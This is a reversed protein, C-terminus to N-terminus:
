ENSKEMLHTLSDLEYNNDSCLKAVRQIYSEMDFKRKLGAENMYRISGFVPRRTWPRDHKGFCWAVGAFSNPDRGDLSYKNNLYIATKYAEKYNPTWEIIKKGWYMRMYNHMKGTVIMELQAANWCHDHTRAKEFDDMEYIYPRKDIARGELTQVAWEPLSEHSDYKDNYECFNFSLERRVILEELFKEKAAAPADSNKILLAIHVPSIQGFHLYPSIHSLHNLAPDNRMSDYNHLRTEIFDKVTELARTEGGTFRPSKFVTKDINNLQSINFDAPAFYEGSIKLGLSSAGVKGQPLTILYKDLKKHIKPRLTRAAFEEKGSAENVPVVAESEVQYFACKVKEAASKRWEKQIRLYGRDTVVACAKQSLKVIENVPDCIRCVLKIKRKELLKETDDLGELLFHFHRLNAEPYRGYIAFFALLPKKLENALNIAFELAHNYESRVSAQMWYLIYDGELPNNSNLKKIRENQM